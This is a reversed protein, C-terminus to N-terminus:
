KATDCFIFYNKVASRLDILRQIKNAGEKFSFEQPFPKNAVADARSYRLHEIVSKGFDKKYEEDLDIGLAVEVSKCRSIRDKVSKPNLRGALWKTYDERRM